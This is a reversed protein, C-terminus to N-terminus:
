KNFLFVEDIMLPISFLNKSNVEEKFLTKTYASFIPCLSNSKMLFLIFVIKMSFLIINIHKHIGNKSGGLAVQFWRSGSLVM